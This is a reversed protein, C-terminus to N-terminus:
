ILFEKRLLNLAYSSAVSINRERNNFPLLLKQSLTRNASSVAIWVTGVPKEESGGTPGAVGSTAISYDTKLLSRVNSAMQEVVEKSVAGNTKLDTESVNLISLKVENAYSVIGGMFYASSGPTSTLRKAINGGTCSEALSITQKKETLLKGVVFELTEKEAGYIHEGILLKLQDVEKDIIPALAGDKDIGSIRLRVFGPSPLYALKLHHKVLGSEWDEITQALISEPVGVTRITKHIVNPTKFHKVLLPFGEDTLIGKMEYPVGPLSIFVVKNREFWMGSATGRTNKLILCSKPLLAQDQNVKTFPVNFKKYREKLQELKEANLVLETNFYKCLTHKTIDDKTPGLGGTMIVLQVRNSAEDLAKIIHQENDTISSIQHVRIGVLSLQEGIWASNTDITQGILLEDGITIIEALM